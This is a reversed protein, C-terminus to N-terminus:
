YLKINKKLITRHLKPHPDQVIQNSPLYKMDYIEKYICYHMRDSFEIYGM